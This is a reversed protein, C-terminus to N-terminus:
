RIILKKIIVTGYLRSSAPDKHKLAYSFVRNTGPNFEFFDNADWRPEKGGNKNVKSTYEQNGIKIVV